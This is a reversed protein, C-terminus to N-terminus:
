EARIGASSRQRARRQVVSQRLTPHPGHSPMTWRSKFGALMPNVRSPMTFNSSKPSAFSALRSARPDFRLWDGVISLGVIVPTRSPAAGYMDGSCARPLTTSLRVSIQADPHTSYSISAPRRANPPSVMDSVIATTSSRSGSQVCSGADVGLATRRTMSSHRALSGFRRKCSMPSTRNSEASEGTAADIGARDYGSHNATPPMAAMATALVMSSVLPPSLSATGSKEWTMARVLPGSRSNPGAM